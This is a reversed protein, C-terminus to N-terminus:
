RNVVSSLKTEKRRERINERRESEIDLNVRARESHKRVNGGFSLHQPCNKIKRTQRFMRGRGLHLTFEERISNLIKTVLKCRIVNIKM